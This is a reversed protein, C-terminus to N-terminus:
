NFALESFGFVIKPLSCGSGCAGGSEGCVMRGLQKRATMVNVSVAQAVPENTTSGLSIAEITVGWTFWVEEISGM